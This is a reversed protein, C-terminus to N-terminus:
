RIYKKNISDYIRSASGNLQEDFFVVIDKNFNELDMKTKLPESKHFNVSTSIIPGVKNIINKIDQRKVLRVAVSSDKTKFIVTTPDNSLLLEKDTQDFVDLDKLQELNSILIILRKNLDAKKVRNIERENELTYVASLGYITDTPLIIIKNQKLLEIAKNEEHNKLM